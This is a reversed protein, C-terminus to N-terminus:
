IEIFENNKTKDIFYSAYRANQVKLTDNDAYFGYSNYHEIGEPISMDGMEHLFLCKENGIQIEGVPMKLEEGDTLKTVVSGMVHCGGTPGKTEYRHIIEDINSSIPVKKLMYLDM